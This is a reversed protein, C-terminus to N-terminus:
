VSWTRVFMDGDDDEDEESLNHHAAAATAAKARYRESVADEEEEEDGEATIVDSESETSEEEQSREEFIRGPYSEAAAAQLVLAAFAVASRVAEFEPNNQEAVPMIACESATPASAYYHSQKRKRGGGSRYQQPQQMNGGWRVSRQQQQQQQLPPQQQSACAAPPARMIPVPGLVGPAAISGPGALAQPYAQPYALQTQEYPSQFPAGYMCYQQRYFGEVDMQPALPLPAPIYAEPVVSMDVPHLGM